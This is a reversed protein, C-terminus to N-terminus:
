EAREERSRAVAVNLTREMFEQGNLAQIAKEGDEDNSMEVFGYGRSRGNLKDTIIKASTVEGYESFLQNLDSDKAKYNLNSIFINM